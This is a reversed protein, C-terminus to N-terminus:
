KGLIKKIDEIRAFELPSFIKAQKALLEVDSKRAKKEIEEELRLLANKIKAIDQKNEEMITKLQMLDQQFTEKTEILNQGVLLLRQKLLKQKEDLDRIKTSFEGFVPSLDYQQAEPM